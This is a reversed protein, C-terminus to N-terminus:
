RRWTPHNAVEESLQAVLDDTTRESAFLTSFNQRTTQFFEPQREEKVGLLYAFAALHEGGGRAADERIRDLNASAFQKAKQDSHRAEDRPSTSSTFDSSADTTNQLTESTGDTSRTTVACGSVVGIFSGILLLRIAAPNVHLM